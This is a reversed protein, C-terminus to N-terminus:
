HCCCYGFTQRLSYLHRCAIMILELHPRVAVASPDVVRRRRGVRSSVPGAPRHAVGVVVVVGHQLLGADAQQDAGPSGVGAAVHAQSRGDAGFRAAFLETPLTYNNTAPNGSQTETETETVAAPNSM